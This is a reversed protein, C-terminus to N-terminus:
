FGLWRVRLYVGGVTFLIFGAVGVLLWNSVTRLVQNRRTDFASYPKCVGLLAYGLIVVSGLLFFSRAIDPVKKDTLSIAIAIVCMLISVMAIIPQVLYNVQFWSNFTRSQALTGQIGAILGAVFERPANGEYQVRVWSDNRGRAFRVRVELTEQWHGRCTMHIEKTGDHFRAPGFEKISKVNETGAADIIEISLRTENPGKSVEKVRRQIYDELSEILAKDVLCSPIRKEASFVPM